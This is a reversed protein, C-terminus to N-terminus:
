DHYTPLTLRSYSQNSVGSLTTAGFRERQRQMIARGPSSIDRLRPSSVSSDIWSQETTNSIQQVGYPFGFMLFQLIARVLTDHAYQLANHSTINIQLISRKIIGAHPPPTGGNFDLERVARFNSSNEKMASSTPATIQTQTTRSIAWVCGEGDQSAPPVPM